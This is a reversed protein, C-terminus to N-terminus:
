VGHNDEHLGCTAFLQALEAPIPAAVAIRESTAPHVFAIRSAHLAQRPFDRLAAALEVDAIAQWQPTGYVQDGVIPWGSSALHVRIQHTRGTLLRCRLLAIAVRQATMRGIREFTTVSAAGATTSAIILRRDNPDNRLRLDIKGRAPPRGYVLALYEKEGRSSALAKQLAAHVAGTKAVVVLGSTQKDLRGVLSPRMEATWARAHWLLANMLTGAAHRYSPHVILGAPKNVILLHPDEYLIELPADEAAMVRRPPAVDAAPIAIAITDGLAARSAVRRVAAGNVSVCGDAIWKQVRTRTAADVDTLHRRLVLDLRRGADGRDCHFVTGPV